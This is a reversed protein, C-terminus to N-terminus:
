FIRQEVYSNTSCDFHHLVLDVGNFACVKILAATAATLGTVYVHLEVKSCLLEVDSQDIQNICCGYTSYIACNAIVFDNAVKEIAEFNSVDEISDFIYNSVPLEHRGKVLGVFLKEM